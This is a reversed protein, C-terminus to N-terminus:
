LKKYNLKYEVKDGDKLKGQEIQTLIEQPAKHKKGDLTLHVTCFHYIGLPPQLFPAGTYILYRWEGRGDTGYCIHGPIPKARKFHRIHVKFKM